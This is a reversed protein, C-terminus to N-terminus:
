NPKLGPSKHTMDDEDDLDEDNNHKAWLEPLDVGEDKAMQLIYEVDDHHMDDPSYENLLDSLFGEHGEYPTSHFVELDDGNMMATQYDENVLFVCGSNRNFAARVQNQYFTDPLGKNVWADLIDRLMIIERFGFDALNETYYDSTM